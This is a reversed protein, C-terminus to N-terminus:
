CVRLMVKGVLYDAAWRVTLLNLVNSIIDVRTGPIGDVKYSSEKILEDTMQRFIQAYRELDSKGNPFMAKAAWMKDRDHSNFLLTLVSSIPRSTCFLGRKSM